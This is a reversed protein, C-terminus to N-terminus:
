RGATAAAAVQGRQRPGDTIDAVQAAVVIGGNRWRCDFACRNVPRDVVGCPVEEAREAAKSTRVDIQAVPCVPTRYGIRPESM